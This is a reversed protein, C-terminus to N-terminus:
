VMCHHHSQTNKAARAANKNKRTVVVFVHDRGPEKLGEISPTIM